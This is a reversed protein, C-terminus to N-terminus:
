YMACATLVNRNEGPRCKGRRFITDEAWERQPLKRTANPGMPRKDQFPLPVNTSESGVFYRRCEGTKISGFIQERTGGMGM